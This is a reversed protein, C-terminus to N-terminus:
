IGCNTDGAQPAELRASRGITELSATTASESGAKLFNAHTRPPRTLEEVTRKGAGWRSQVTRRAIGVADALERLSHPLGNYEICEAKGRPM